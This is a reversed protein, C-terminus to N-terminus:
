GANRGSGAPLLRRVLGKDIKERIGRIGSGFDRLVYRSQGRPEALFSASRTLKCRISKIAWEINIRRVRTPYLIM